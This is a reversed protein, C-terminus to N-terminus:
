KPGGSRVLMRESPTPEIEVILYAFNLLMLIQITIIIHFMKLIMKLIVDTSTQVQILQAANKWFHM